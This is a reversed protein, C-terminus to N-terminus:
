QGNYIKVIRPLDKYQIEGSRIEKLVDPSDSLYRFVAANFDRKKVQLPEQDGTKAIFVATNGELSAPLEQQVQSWPDAGTHGAPNNSYNYYYM